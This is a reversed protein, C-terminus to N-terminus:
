SQAGPDLRTLLDLLIEYDEEGLTEKFGTVIEAAM